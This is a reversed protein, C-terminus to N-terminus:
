FLSQKSYTIKIKAKELLIKAIMPKSVAPAIKTVTTTATTTYYYSSSQQTYTTVDIPSLTFQMDEATAIGNQNKIINLIYDRMGDFKYVKNDADYVAYFSDKNNTLSDGAIFKEKQSTKVMLLYTPPAIDDYDTALEEVPLTLELKNIVALDGAAHAKYSYIIDQIPFNVQLEYGAPAMVIAEGADIRAKIAPDVDLSLINNSIVEPTAGMYTQHNNVITDNGASTTTHQRYYSVFETVTFNMVRGSGYSNAIYIGPFYDAFSGPTNFVEPHNVYTNFMEQALTVPMPVSVERYYAQTTNDYALQASSMSYPAAGLLNAPNYYPAPDFDSYIPTPLKRDLKYVNLRMPMLTDGTFGGTYPVRLKLSCSDILDATVGATDIRLAPMFQTVVQSELTGFGAAKIRGVLQTSTRSLLRSNPVSTGTIVFSSDEIVSSRTDAISSGITDDTCSYLGLVVAAAFLVKFLSKM